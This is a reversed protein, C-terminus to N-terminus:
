EVANIFNEYIGEFTEPHKWTNNTAERPSRNNSNTTSSTCQLPIPRPQAKQKYIYILLTDTNIPGTLETPFKQWPRQVGIM